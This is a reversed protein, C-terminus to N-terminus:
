SAGKFIPRRLTAGEAPTRKAPRRTCRGESWDGVDTLVAALRLMAGAQPGHTQTVLQSLMTRWPQAAPGRYQASMPNSEPKRGFHDTGRARVMRAADRRGIGALIDAIV